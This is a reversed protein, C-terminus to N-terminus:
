ELPMTPLDLDAFPVAPGDMLGFLPDPHLEMDLGPRYGSMGLDTHTGNNIPFMNLIADLDFSLISQDM